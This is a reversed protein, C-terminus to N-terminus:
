LCLDAHEARAGFRRWLRLQCIARCVLQQRSNRDKPNRRWRLVRCEWQGLPRPQRTDGADQHRPRAGLDRLEDLKSIVYQHSLQEGDKTLDGTILVLDPKATKIRAIMEDFLPQSYDVMKRQGNLYDTWAKGKNVLLEPAMVHPDSVVVIKKQASIGNCVMLMVMAMLINKVKM